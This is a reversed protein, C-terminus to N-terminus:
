DPNGAFAPWSSKFGLAEFFDQDVINAGTSVIADIMNSHVMEWVARKLGASLLSGGLCLFISCDKEALMRHYIDAARALNRAQFSMKSMAEVLNVVNHKTIDIHEVPQKLFDIKKKDEM